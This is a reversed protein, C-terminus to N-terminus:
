RRSSSFVSSAWRSSAVRRRPSRARARRSTWPGALLYWFLVSAAAALGVGAVYALSVKVPEDGTVFIIASLIQPGAVMTIALPLIATDM